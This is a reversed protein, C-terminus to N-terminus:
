GILRLQEGASLTRCGKSSNCRFCALQINIKIDEGGLFTPIIHDRTAALPHPVKRKLNLKRHCIQCRGLDREFIYILSVKSGTGHYFLKCCNSKPCFRQNKFGYFLTGCWQCKREYKKVPIYNYNYNYNHKFKCLDSCYQKLLWRTTFLHGCYSCEKFYVNCSQKVAKITASCEDCYLRNRSAINDCGDTKCIRKDDTKFRRAHFKENCKDCYYQGAKVRVKGCERCLNNEKLTLRNVRQQETTRDQCRDCLRHGNTEAGCAPCLGADLRKQIKIKRAAAWKKNWTM